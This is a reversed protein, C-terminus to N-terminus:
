RSVARLAPLSCVGSTGMAFQWVFFAARAGLGGQGSVTREVVTNRGGVAQVQWAYKYYKPLQTHPGYEFTWVKQTGAVFIASTAQGEAQWWAIGDGWKPMEGFLDLLTEGPKRWLPFNPRNLDWLVIDGTAYPSPSQKFLLFHRWLSPEASEGSLQTNQTLNVMKGTNLDYRMLDSLPHTKLGRTQLTRVFVITNGYLTPQTYSTRSNRTPVIVTKRGTHLNYLDLQSRLSITRRGSNQYVDEDWLVRGANLTLDPYERLLTSNPGNGHDLIVHQGSVVNGLWLKWDLPPTLTRVIGAVWPYDINWHELIGFHPYAGPRIPELRGASTVIAMSVRSAGTPPPFPLWEMLVHQSDAAVPAWQYRSDNPLPRSWSRHPPLATIHTVHAPPMPVACRRANKVLASSAASRGTPLAVLATAVLWAVITRQRATPSWPSRENKTPTPRM